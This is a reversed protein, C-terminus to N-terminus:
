LTWCRLLSADLAKLNFLDFLDDFGVVFPAPEHRFYEETYRVTIGHACGKEKTKEMYWNHLSQCGYGAYGLLATTLLPSGFSYKRPNPPPLPKIIKSKSKNQVVQGSRTKRHSSEPVSVAARKEQKKPTKEVPVSLAPKQLSLQPPTMSPGTPSAHDHRSPQPPTMSPGTPSAHDDRSPQPPTVSPGTPSAKQISPQPPVAPDLTIDKKPWQIVSYLADGLTRIEESPCIELQIARLNQHVMDVSVKAYGQAVQAGHQATGEQCPYAMGRGAEISLGAM